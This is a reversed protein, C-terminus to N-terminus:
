PALPSSLLAATRVLALSKNKYPPRFVLRTGNVVLKTNHHAPVCHKPLRLIDCRDRAALALLPTPGASCSTERHSLDVDEVGTQTFPGSITCPQGTIYHLHHHALASSGFVAIIFPTLATALASRGVIQRSAPKNTPSLFRFRSLRICHNLYIEECAAQVFPASRFLHGYCRRYFSLV